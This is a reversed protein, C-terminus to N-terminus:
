KWGVNHLDIVLCLSIAFLFFQLTSELNRSHTPYSLQGVSLNIHIFTFSKCPPQATPPQSVKAGGEKPAVAVSTEKNWRLESHSYYTDWKHTVRKQESLHSIAPHVARSLDSCLSWPLYAHQTFVLTLLTKTNLGEWSKKRKTFGQCTHATVSRCPPDKCPPVRQISKLGKM